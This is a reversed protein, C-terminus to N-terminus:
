PQRNQFPQEVDRVYGHLIYGPTEFVFANGIKLANRGFVLTEGREKTALVKFTLLLDNGFDPNDQSTIFVLEAFIKSNIGLQKDGISIHEQMWNLAQPLIVHVTVYEEEPVDAVLRRIREPYRVKIYLGAALVSVILLVVIDLLNMRGFLRGRDDLIRM